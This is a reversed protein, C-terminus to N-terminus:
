GLDRDRRRMSTERRKRSDFLTLNRRCALFFSRHRYSSVGDRDIPKAEEDLRRTNGRVTTTSRNIVRFSGVFADSDRSIVGRDQRIEIVVAAAASAATAM